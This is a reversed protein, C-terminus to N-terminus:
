HRRFLGIKSGFILRPFKGFQKISLGGGGGMHVCGSAYLLSLYSLSATPILFKLIFFCDIERYATKMKIKMTQSFSDTAM